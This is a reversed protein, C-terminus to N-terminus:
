QSMSCCPLIESNRTHSLINLIQSCSSPDRCLPPNLGQSPVTPYLIWCSNCSCSLETGPGPVEKHWPHLWLLLMPSNWFSSALHIFLLSVFRYATHSRQAATRSFALSDQSFCILPWWPTLPPALRSPAPHCFYLPSRTVIYQIRQWRSHLWANLSSCHVLGFSLILLSWYSLKRPYLHLKKPWAAPIQMEEVGRGPEM